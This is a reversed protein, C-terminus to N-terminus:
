FDVETDYYCCKLLKEMEKATPMEKLVERIEQEKELYISIRDADYMNLKTQLYTLIIEM